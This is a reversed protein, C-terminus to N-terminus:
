FAVIVKGVTHWGGLDDEGYVKSVGGLGLGGPVTSYGAEAGVRFMGRGVEVGAFGHFGAKSGDEDFAEGAVESEEKYSTLSGGMGAYPVIVRGDRFRYGVSLFVPTLRLKLPFGLKQVTSNPTAVFVREGEKTFTRVGASVFAARWFTYRVAGGFTGGGRADFVASASNEAAMQFYGAHGEIALEGATARPVALGAVAAIACAALRVRAPTRM